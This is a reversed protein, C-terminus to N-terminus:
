IDIINIYVNHGKKINLDNCTQMQSKLQGGKKPMLLRKQSSVKQM